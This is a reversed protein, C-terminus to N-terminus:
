RQVDESMNRMCPPHFYDAICVFTLTGQQLIYRLNLIDRKEGEENKLKTLKINVSFHFYLFYLFENRSHLYCRSSVM